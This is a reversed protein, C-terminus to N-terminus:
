GSDHLLPHDSNVATLKVDGSEPWFYFFLPGASLKEEFRKLLNEDQGRRTGGEIEVLAFMAAGNLGHIM